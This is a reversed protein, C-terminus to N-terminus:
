DSFPHTQKYIDKLKAIDNHAYIQTSSLSSHGLLEKIANIDAGHQLLHTAFSHRLIHPSKRDSDTGGLLRKVLNYVWKDNLKEGDFNCFIYPSEIGNESKIRLFDALQKVIEISLPLVREKQGKGLVRLEQRSLDLKSRELNILESRRVGTHYFTSLIIFPLFSDFDKVASELDELLLGLQNEKVYSPIKKRLKPLSVDLNPLEDIVKTVYQFKAFTKVASVKRHVTKESLKNQLLHRIWSRLLPAVLASSVDKELNTYQFFQQVDKTYSIVTHKSYGREILLYDSFKDIHSFTSM